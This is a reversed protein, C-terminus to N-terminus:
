DRNKSLPTKKPWSPVDISLVLICKIETLFVSIYYTSYVLISVKHMTSVHKTNEERCLLIGPIVKSYSTKIEMEKRMESHRRSHSFEHKRNGVPFFVPFFGATSILM